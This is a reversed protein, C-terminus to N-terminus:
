AGHMCMRSAPAHVRPQAATHMHCANDRATSAPAPQCGQLYIAHAKQRKRQGQTERVRQRETETRDRNQRDTHIERERERKRETETETETGTHRDTDTQRERERETAVERRHVFLICTGYRMMEGVLDLLPSSRPQM